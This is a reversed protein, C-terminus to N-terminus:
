IIESNPILIKLPNKNKMYNYYYYNDKYKDIYNNYIIKYKEQLSQIENILNNIVIQGNNLYINKDIEDNKSYICYEEIKINFENYINNCLMLYNHKLNNLCENLRNIIEIM